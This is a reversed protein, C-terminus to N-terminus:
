TFHLSTQTQTPCLFPAFYCLTLFPFAFNFHTPVDLRAIIDDCLSPFSAAKSRSIFKSGQAQTQAQFNAWIKVQKMYRLSRDVHAQICKNRGLRPINTCVNFSLSRGLSALTPLGRDKFFSLSRTAIVDLFLWMEKWNAHAMELYGAIENIM